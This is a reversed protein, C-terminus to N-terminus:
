ATQVFVQTNYKYESPSCQFRERFIRSFYSRSTFGISYVVESVNMDTTKLLHEALKVRVNKIYNNVTTDHMLKFGSQLKAPTLGSKLCLDKVTYQKQPYNNILTSIERIQGLEKATLNGTKSHTSNLDISHQKIEYALMMHVIGEIILSRVLGTEKVASLEQMKEAVKLNYSSVTITNASPGDGIFKKQLETNLLESPAKGQSPLRNVLIISTKIPTHKTFHLVNVGLAENTLVATQFNDIKTIGKSQSSFQHTITGKSCYAFCLPPLSNYQSIFDVDLQLDMDFELYTIGGRLDLGRITGNGLEGDFTLVYENLRQTFTGDTQAQLKKFGDHLDSSKLTITRM